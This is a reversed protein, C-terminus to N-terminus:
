GRVPIEVEALAPAKLAPELTKVAGIVRIPAIGIHSQGAVQEIGGTDRDGTTAAKSLDGASAGADVHAFQLETQLQDESRHFNCAAGSLESERTLETSGNVWSPTQINEYFRFFQFIAQNPGLTM